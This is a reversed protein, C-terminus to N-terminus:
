RRYAKSTVAELIYCYGEEIHPIICNSCDKISNNFNADGDGDILYLPCRCFLCPKWEKLDHGHLLESFYLKKQMCYFDDPIHM